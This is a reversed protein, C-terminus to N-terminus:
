SDVLTGHPVTFHYELPVLYGFLMLWEYRFRRTIIKLSKHKTDAFHLYIKANRPQRQSMPAKGDNYVFVFERDLYTVLGHQERDTDEPVFYSSRFNTDQRKVRKVFLLDHIQIIEVHPLLPGVWHMLFAGAVSGVIGGVIGALLSLIRGVATPFFTTELFYFPLSFLYACLLIPLLLALM